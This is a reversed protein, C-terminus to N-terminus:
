STTGVTLEVPRGDTQWDDCALSARLAAFGVQLVRSAQRTEGAPETVDASVSYVFVPQGERAAGPAPPAPVTISFGGDADTQSEGHAIEQTGVDNGRWWAAYVVGRTVRWTVKAGDVPAGTYAAAHGALTVPDELRVSARPADLAVQFK